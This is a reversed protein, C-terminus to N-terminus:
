RSGERRIRYLDTGHQGTSLAKPSDLFLEEARFAVSTLDIRAAVDPMTLTVFDAPFTQILEKWLQDHGVPM